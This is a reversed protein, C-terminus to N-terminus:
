SRYFSRRFVDIMLYTYRKESVTTQAKESAAKQSIKAHIRYVAGDLINVGALPECTVQTNKTQWVQCLISLCGRWFKVVTFEHTNIGM